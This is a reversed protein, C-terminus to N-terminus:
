PNRGIGSWMPVILLTKQKNTQKKLLICVYKSKTTKKQIRNINPDVKRNLVLIINNKFSFNNRIEKLIIYLWHELFLNEELFKFLLSFFNRAYNLIATCVNTSLWKLRTQSQAAGHVAAQWAGGDMPNEQCSDQFPNGHGELPDEQGLSRVWM